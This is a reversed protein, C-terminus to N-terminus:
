AASGGTLRKEVEAALVDFADELEWALYEVYEQEDEFKAKGTTLKALQRLLNDVADRTKALAPPLPDTIRDLLSIVKAMREDSVTSENTLTTEKALGRSHATRTRVGPGVTM